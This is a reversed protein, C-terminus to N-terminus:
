TKAVMWSKIAEPLQAQLVVTVTVDTDERLWVAAVTPATLSAFLPSSCSSSGVVLLPHIRFSLSFIGAIDHHDGQCPFTALSREPPLQDARDHLPPLALGVFLAMAGITM